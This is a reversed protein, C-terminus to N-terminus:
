HKVKVEMIVKGASQLKQIKNALDLVSATVQYTKRDFKSSGEAYVIVYGTMGLSEILQTNIIM